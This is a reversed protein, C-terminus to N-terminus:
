RKESGTKVFKTGNIVLADINDLYKKLTDEDLAIDVNLEKLSFTVGNCDILLGFPKTVSDLDLFCSNDTCPLKYGSNKFDNMGEVKEKVM